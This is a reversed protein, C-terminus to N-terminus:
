ISSHVCVVETERSELKVLYSPEYSEESSVEQIIYRVNFHGHLWDYEEPNDLEPVEVAVMRPGNLETADQDQKSDFGFM